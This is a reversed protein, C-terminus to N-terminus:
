ILGCMIYNVLGIKLEPARSLMNEDCVIYTEDFIRRSEEAAQCRSVM